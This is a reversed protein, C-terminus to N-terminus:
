HKLLLLVILVNDLVNTNDPLHAILCRSAPNVPNSWQYHNFGDWYWILISYYYCCWWRGNMVWWGFVLYDFWSQRDEMTDEMGNHSLMLFTTKLGNPATTKSSIMSQLCFSLLVGKLSLSWGPSDDFIYSLPSIIFLLLYFSDVSSNHTHTHTVCRLRSQQEQNRNLSVPGEASSCAHAKGRKVSYLLPFPPFAFRSQHHPTIFTSHLSSDDKISLIWPFMSTQTIKVPPPKHFASTEAKHQTDRQQETFWIHTARVCVCLLVVVLCNSIIYNHFMKLFSFIDHSPPHM